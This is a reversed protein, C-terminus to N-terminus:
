EKSPGQQDSDISPDGLSPRDETVIPLEGAKTMRIQPFTRAFSRAAAVRGEPAVMDIGHLLHMLGLSRRERGATWLYPVALRRQEPRTAKWRKKMILFESLVIVSDILENASYGRSRAAYTKSMEAFTGAVAKKLGTAITSEFAVISLYPGAAGSGGCMEGIQSLAAVEKSIEAKRLNKKVSIAAVVSQWPVVVADGYRLYHPYWSADYVLIDVQYSRRKTAPDFVFGTGVTLRSPLSRRLFQVLLDEAFRGEEGPHGSGANVDSAVFGRFLDVAGLLADCEAELVRDEPSQDM